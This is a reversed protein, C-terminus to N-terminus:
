FLLHSEDLADDPIDLWYGTNMIKFDLEDDTQTDVDLFQDFETKSQKKKQLFIDHPQTCDFSFFSIADSTNRNHMPPVSLQRRDYTTTKSVFHTQLKIYACPRLPVGAALLFCRIENLDPVSLAQEHIMKLCVVCTYSAFVNTNDVYFLQFTSDIVDDDQLMLIDYVLKPIRVIRKNVLQHGIMFLTKRFSHMADIPMCGPRVANSFLTCITTDMCAIRIEDLGNRVKRLRADHIFELVTVREQHLQVREEYFTNFAHLLPTHMQKMYFFTPLSVNDLTRELVVCIENHMCSIESKSKSEHYKLLLIIMCLPLQYSTTKDNVSVFLQYSPDLLYPPCIHLFMSVRDQYVFGGGLNWFKTLALHSICIAVSPTQQDTGLVFSAANVSLQKPLKAPIRTKKKKTKKQPGRKKETKVTSKRPRLNHTDKLVTTAVAAKRKPTRKSPM